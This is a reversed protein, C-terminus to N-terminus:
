IVGKAKLERLKMPGYGLYRKYVEGNDHGLPRGLSKVRAPTRHQYANTSESYLITGYQEDEIVNVWPRYKFHPFESVEDIYLIPGAAIEYEMLKTEAEIRNIDRLWKTTVTYTKILAQLANRAAMEKLLPDEHILRGFEPLDREICMGIRYWLRDTQGGIMMYGDKCPNWEYQNLNPDWAGTRAKVSENFGYWCIDFDLIDMMTEAATCEIFQGEGSGLCDRWYLAALISNAAQEGAVYDSLWVGSRMPDGGKGGRPCQDPPFGTNAIWSNAASGFPELMWQGHKSVEDKMPGWQGREGIWCYILKPNIKSLHRYGIGLSDMYGPPYEEILIDMNRAIDKYMQRGDETELNLTISHANRLEHIFDLGCPTGTAADKLMYEERGFPTLQRLPDGGPPEINILEAGLESMLGAAFKNGMRWLGNCLIRVGQLAEPKDFSYDIRLNDELFKGFESAKRKEYVKMCEEPTPPPTVPWPRVEPGMLPLTDARSNIEIDRKEKAM